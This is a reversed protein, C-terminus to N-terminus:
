KPKEKRKRNEESCLLGAMVFKNIHMKADEINPACDFACECGFTILIASLTKSDVIKKLLIEKLVDLILDHAKELSEKKNM